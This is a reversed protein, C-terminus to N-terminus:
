LNSHSNPCLKHSQGAKPDALTWVSGMWCFLGLEPERRLTSRWHTHLHPATIRM